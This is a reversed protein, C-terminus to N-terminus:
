AALVAVRLGAEGAAAALAPMSALSLKAQGSLVAPWAQDDFHTQLWAVAQISFPMLRVGSELKALTLDM